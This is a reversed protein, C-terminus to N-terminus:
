LSEPILILLREVFNMQSILAFESEGLVPERGMTNVPNPV